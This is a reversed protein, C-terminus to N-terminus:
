IRTKPQDPSRDIVRSDVFSELDSSRVRQDGGPLVVRPLLRRRLYRRLTSSGIKLCEAAEPITLLPDM